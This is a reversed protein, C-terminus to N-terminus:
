TAKAKAAAVDRLVAEAEARAREAQARATKADSRM